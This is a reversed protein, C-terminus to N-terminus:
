KVRMYCTPTEEMREEQPVVGALGALILAARGTPRKVKEANKIQTELSKKRTKYVEADIAKAARFKHLEALRVRLLEANATKDRYYEPLARNYCTKMSNALSITELKVGLISYLLTCEEDTLLKKGKMTDIISKRERVPRLLRESEKFIEEREGIKNPPRKQAVNKRSLAEVKEWLKKLEKWEKTKVLEKLDPSLLATLEELDAELASKRIKYVERTIAEKELLTELEALALEVRKKALQRKQADTMPAPQVPAVSEYCTIMPEAEEAATALASFGFLSLILAALARAARVTGSKAKLLFAIIGASLAIMLGIVLMWVNVIRYM